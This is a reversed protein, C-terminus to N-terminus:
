ETAHGSLFLINAVDGIPPQDLGIVPGAIQGPGNPNPWDSCDFPEGTKDIALEPVGGQVPNQILAKANGSTFVGPETSGFDVTLCDDPSSGPALNVTVSRTLTFSLSGPPSAEGQGTLILLPGPSQDEHSDQSMVVDQPVGGNCSVTGSSGAALLKMCAVSGDIVTWAVIVDEGLSLPAVGNADPVGAVLKLTSPLWPDLSVDFGALASTNFTSGPRSVSLERTGLGASVQTPTETPTDVTLTPTETPTPTDAVPTATPTGQDTPTATAPEFSTPTATPVLPTATGTAPVTPTSVVSTATRTATSVAGSTATSTVAPKATNTPVPASSNDDSCGVLAGLAVVLTAKVVPQWRM